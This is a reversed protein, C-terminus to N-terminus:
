MIAIFNVVFIAIPNADVCYLAVLETLIDDCCWYHCHCSLQQLSLQYFESGAPAAFILVNIWSNFVTARLQSAFTFKPVDDDEEEGMEEDGKVDEKQRRFKGLFRSRPKAGQGDIEGELDLGRSSSVNIPDQSRMSPEPQEPTGFQHHQAEEGGAAGAASANKFSPSQGADSGASDPPFTGSYEPGSLGENMDLRRRADESMRLDGM